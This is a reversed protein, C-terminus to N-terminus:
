LNQSINKGHIMTEFILTHLFLSLKQQQSIGNTSSSAAKIKRKIAVVKRPSNKAPQISVLGAKSDSVHQQVVVAAGSAESQSINSYSPTYHFSSASPSNTANIAPQYFRQQEFSHYSPPPNSMMENYDAAVCPEAGSLTDECGGDGAAYEVFMENFISETATAPLLPINYNPPQQHAYQHQSPQYHQMFAATSAAPAESHSKVSQELKSKKKM